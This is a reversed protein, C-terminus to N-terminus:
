YSTPHWRIPIRMHSFCNHWWSVNQLCTPQLSRFSIIPSNGKRIGARFHKQIARIYSHLATTQKIWTSVTLLSCWPVRIPLVQFQPLGLRASLDKEAVNPWVNRFFYIFLNVGPFTFSTILIKDCAIIGTQGQPLGVRVILSTWKVSM